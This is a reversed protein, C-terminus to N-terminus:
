NSLLYRTQYLELELQSQINRDGPSLGQLRNIQVHSWTAPFPLSSRVQPGLIGGQLLPAVYESLCPHM